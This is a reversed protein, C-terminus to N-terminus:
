SSGKLLPSQQHNTQMGLLLCLKRILNLIFLLLFYHFSFSVVYKVESDEEDHEMVMITQEVQQSARQYTQNCLTTKALLSNCGLVVMM